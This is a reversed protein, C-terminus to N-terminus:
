HFYMKVAPLTKSSFPLEYFRQAVQTWLGVSMMRLHYERAAPMQVLIVRQQERRCFIKYAFTHEGYSDLCLCLLIYSYLQQYSNNLCLASLLGCAIVFLM